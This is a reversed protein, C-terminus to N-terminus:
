QKAEALFLSSLKATAMSTQIGVTMANVMGFNDTDVLETDPDDNHRARCHLTGDTLAYFELRLPGSGPIPAEKMQVIELRLVHIPDSTHIVIKCTAQLGSQEGYFAVFSADSFPVLDDLHLEGYPRLAQAPLTLRIEANADSTTLVSDAFEWAGTMQVWHSRDDVFGDFVLRQEATAGSPDCGDGVGDRDTDTNDIVRPDAPCPDRDNPIGDCDEDDPDGPVCAADPAIPEALGFV